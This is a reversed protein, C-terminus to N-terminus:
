YNKIKYLFRINTFECKFYYCINDDYRYLYFDYNKNNNIYNSIINIKHSPPIAVHPIIKTDKAWYIYKDDFNTFIIKKWELNNIEERLNKAYWWESIFYWLWMESNFSHSINFIILLSITSVIFLKNKINFIYILWLIYIIIWSIYLYRTYSSWIWWSEFYFWSWIKWLYFFFQILIIFILLIFYKKFLIKNNNKKILYLLFFLFFPSVLLFQFYINKLFIYIDFNIIFNIIPNWINNDIKFDQFHNLRFTPNNFNLFWNFYIKHYLYFPILFLVFFLIYIYSFRLLSPFRYLVFPLYFLIIEIRMFLLIWCIITFIIGFKYSKKINLLYYLWMFFLAVTSFNNFLFSGNYISHSSILIIISIALIIKINFKHTILEIIKFIYILLILAFIPNLIILLNNDIWKFISELIIMGPMSSSSFAKNNDYFLLWRVWLYSYSNNKDLDDIYLFNNNKLFSDSILDQQIIDTNSIPFIKIFAFNLIIYFIFILIISLIFKINFKNDLKM